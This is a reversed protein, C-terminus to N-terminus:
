LTVPAPLGDIRGNSYHLIDDLGDELYKGAEAWQTLFESTKADNLKM